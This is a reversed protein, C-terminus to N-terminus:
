FVCVTSPYPIIGQPSPAGRPNRLGDRDGRAQDRRPRGLGRLIADTGTGAHPARPRPHPPEAPASSGYRRLLAVTLRPLQLSFAAQSEARDPDSRSFINVSRPKTNPRIHATLSHKVFRFSYQVEAEYQAERGHSRNWAAQGLTLAPRIVRHRLLM